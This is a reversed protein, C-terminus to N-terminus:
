PQRAVLSYRNFILTKAAVPYGFIERVLSREEGVMRKTAFSSHSFKKRHVFKPLLKKKTKDCNVHKVSPCVSPRVSPRVSPKLIAM